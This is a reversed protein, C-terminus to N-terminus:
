KAKFDAFKDRQSEFLPDFELPGPASESTERRGNCRKESLSAKLLSRGSCRHTPLQRGVWRRM